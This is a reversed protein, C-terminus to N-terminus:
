IRKKFLYQYKRKQQLLVQTVRDKVEEEYYSEAKLLDTIDSDSFHFSIHRGYLQEVTDLQEDFNRCFTRAEVNKILEYIDEGMPYDMTTDALLSAGHDFFPCYHFTGVDDLLVAINHMHRDENLFFADITLMKSMYIGFERLGTMRITQNVLFQIRNEYDEIEYISKTLSQNYRMRFLRELTIMSWGDPLFNESRCGRYNTYKYRIEETDYLVFERQKLSTNGLLASVIYEALGEYGTYDAKYWVAGNLWKIQNGKSSQRNETKIDQEFLEVM